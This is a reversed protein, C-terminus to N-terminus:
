PVVAVVHYGMMVGNAVRDLVGWWQEGYVVSVSNVVSADLCLTVRQMKKNM